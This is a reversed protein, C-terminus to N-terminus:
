RLSLIDPVRPTMATLPLASGERPVLLYVVAKATSVILLVKRGFRSDVDLSGFM